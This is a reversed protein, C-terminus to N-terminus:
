QRRRPRGNGGAASRDTKKVPRPPAARSPLPSISGSCVKEPQERNGVTGAPLRGNARIDTPDCALACAPDALAPNPSGIGVVLCDRGFDRPREAEGERDSAKREQLAAGRTPSLWETPYGVRPGGLTRSSFYQHPDFDALRSPEAISFATAPAIEPPQAPAHRWDRQSRRRSCLANRGSYNTLLLPSGHIEGKM